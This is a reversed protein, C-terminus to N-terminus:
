FSVRQNLMALKNLLEDSLVTAPSHLDMKLYQQDEEGFSNNTPLQVTDFIKIAEHQLQFAKDFRKTYISKM